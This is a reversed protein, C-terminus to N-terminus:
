GAWLAGCVSGDVRDGLQRGAAGSQAVRGRGQPWVGPMDWTVETAMIGVAAEGSDLDLLIVQIEVGEGNRM